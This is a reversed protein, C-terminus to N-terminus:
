KEVLQANVIKVVDEGSWDGDGDEFDSFEVKETVVKTEYSGNQEADIDTFKIQLEVPFAYKSDLVYNGRADTKTEVAQISVAINPIPANVSNTVKGSIVFDASPVGYMVPIDHEEENCSTFGLASLLLGLVYSSVKIVRRKM